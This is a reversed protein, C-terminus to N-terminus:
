SGKKVTQVRESERKILLSIFQHKGRFFIGLKIYMEQSVKIFRQIRLTFLLPISNPLFKLL